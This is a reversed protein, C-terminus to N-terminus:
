PFLYMALVSVWFLACYEANALRGDLSEPKPKPTVPFLIIRIFRFPLLGPHGQRSLEPNLRCCRIVPGNTKPYGCRTPWRGFGM